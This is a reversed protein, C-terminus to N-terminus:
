SFPMQPDSIREALRAILDMKEHFVAYIEPTTGNLIRCFIYHHECRMMKMGPVSNLDKGRAKGAALAEIAAVLQAQYKRAQVDGWNRKTYKAIERLDAEAEPSLIYSSM